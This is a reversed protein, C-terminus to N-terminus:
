PFFNRKNKATFVPGNGAPFASAKGKRGGGRKVRPPPRSKFIKKAAAEMESMEM